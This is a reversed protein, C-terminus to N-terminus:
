GPWAKGDTSPCALEASMCGPRLGLEQDLPYLGQHCEPCLYYARRYTIQDFITLLTAERQFQYQAQGGCPCPVSEPPYPDELVALWSKLLLRGQELLLARIGREMETLSSPREAELLKRTVQTIHQGLEEVLHAASKVKLRRRTPQRDQGPISEM